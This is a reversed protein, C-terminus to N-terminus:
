SETFTPTHSQESTAPAKQQVNPESQSDPTASTKKSQRVATERSRDLIQGVGGGSYLGILTADAELLTLDVKSGLFRESLELDHLRLLVSAGRVYREPNNRGSQNDQRMRPVKCVADFKGGFDIYLDDAMVHVINGIVVRGSIDGLQMLKSERLLRPFSAAKEETLTKVFMSAVDFDGIDSLNTPEATATSQDSTSTTASAGSSSSSAPSSLLRSWRRSHVLSRRLTLM